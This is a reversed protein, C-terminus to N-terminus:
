VKSPEMTKYQNHISLHGLTTHIEPFWSHLYLIHTFGTQRKNGGIPFFIVFQSDPLIQPKLPCCCALKITCQWHDYLKWKKLQKQILLKVQRIFYKKIETVLLPLLITTSQTSMLGLICFSQKLLPEWKCIGATPNLCILPLNGEEKGCGCMLFLVHTTKRERQIWTASQIHVMQRM